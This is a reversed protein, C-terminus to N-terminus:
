HRRRGTTYRRQDGASPLNRGDTGFHFSRLHRRRLRVGSDEVSGGVQGIRLGFRRGNTRQPHTRSEPRRTQRSQHNSPTPGDNFYAPVTIVARSIEEGLTKEAVQKLHKLIESSVQEPSFSRGGSNVLARGQQDASIAYSVSFADDECERFRRGIFRKVSYITSAPAASQGRKAAEGVLSGAKEYRVVSPTTRRGSKDALVIPFGSDVVAVASNTTGLDIGVIRSM